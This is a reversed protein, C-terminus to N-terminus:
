ETAFVNTPLERSPQALVAEAEARFVALEKAYQDPLNKQAALWAVARDFYARAKERHGQRHHAMALFFLDFAAYEGRGAALSQELTATTEAYQYARYQAVGLTNLYLPEQPALEAARRALFLGREPDRNSAPGTVLEWARNNCSFALTARLHADDPHLRLAVSLDDIAEPLRGLQSFAHGRHHYADADNPNNNLRASFREILAEPSETFHEIEGALPGLDIQLPPLRPLSPAAADHDLYAPANWDLGMAALRKRIKRLDWVHVAGPGDNTTVVLLSGDPSFSASNVDCSDPSELRAVTGGSETEVLHIVKSADKVVLLRGDPSFCVGQGRIQRVESWTGVAWLRCPSPSTLLWKGDPSFAVEVLGEVRLDAVRAADGIRWIQAGNKGHSGTALWKGDPSVAVYRVDDLPGVEFNREPTLVHTTGFNALAVIRGAGEGAIWGAGSPLPLQHPPGIRFQGRDSDLQVPWRRVGISGSTLLDGSAEFMLHWALGIPLVALEAGGALDWLVVGQRSGVALLRGDLRISARQYNMPEGSVHAFTRYELAPDVQYTTLQDELAVSIRGDHSFECRTSGSDGTLSLVPRGLVAEWLRLRHEWGNGALLTGAPHFAVGTLTNTSGELTSKRAGTVADWLYIKLDDGSGALTTGDPSWVLGEFNRAPLPLSRVLRGSEAELIRLTPNKEKYAVAIQTGDPSFVPDAPAPGRWSRRPRGSALDYIVFEGGVHAVSIRGSEPSFKAAGWSVPGPDDVVVARREVDWVTLAFGPFHTTALYRGDPSFGFVFIERDGGAQFRAVERDDDVDNVRITGDRFRLAYRTMTPDFAVLVVGAPRRIVRGTKRMDPLALSAIAEDRLPDFGQPGLKLEHAIRTARDLALLSDFRQGVQRGSRTARAQAVFSELLNRRTERDATQIRLNDLSIQDRQERFMWAAAVAGVFLLTFLVAAAVNALALGPNRRCWRWLRETSTSRRALIPRGNQFRRLDEALAQAAAYRKGPEKQLCKLCITEVDHPLAPVLRSPRVPEIAKVQQLTELATTGRFPPRGTLLEYLIAGVAYIDVAPGAEKARGQAQEPAMYSPSGMVSETRTLGSESGLMKALGFDGVKPTGEAGLLVNSPKLDRHVIGQRHAEAIGMAVQEALRAARAAPWPTGDLQRDLSGGALYELEFYPLGEAEGIQRIQVIHPHELRAIAEAETLFRAVHEPDAHAGALIMKLACLRNLRVHRAEYVVGMGGRGLEGNIEYGPVTPAVRGARGKTGATEGATARLPDSVLGPAVAAVLKWVDLSPNQGCVTRETLAALEDQCARCGEVHGALEDRLTEALCDGLLLKLRERDPCETM